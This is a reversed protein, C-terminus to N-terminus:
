DVVEVEIGEALERSIAIKCNCIDCILLRGDQIKKIKAMECFGIERLKACSHGSLSLIVANTDSTIQTLKM